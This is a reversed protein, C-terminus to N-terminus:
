AAFFSLICYKPFHRSYFHRSYCIVSSRFALDWRRTEDM